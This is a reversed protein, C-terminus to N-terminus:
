HGPREGEGPGGQGGGRQRPGAVPGRARRAGPRVHSPDRTRAGFSKLAARPQSFDRHALAKFMWVEFSDPALAIAQGILKDAKDRKGRRLAINARGVLPRPDVPLLVGATLYADESLKRNGLMSYAAAQLLHLEGDVTPTHGEPVLGTIVLQPQATEMYARALPVLVLNEDGGLSLAKELEKIAARPQDERLLTEGLLIRAPLNDPDQQLANRLQIITTSYEEAKFGTLAEEYFEQSRERDIAAQVAPMAGWWGFIAILAASPAATAPFVM